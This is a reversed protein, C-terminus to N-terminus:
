RYTQHIKSKVAADTIPVVEKFVAQPRPPPTWLLPVPASSAQSGLLRRVM